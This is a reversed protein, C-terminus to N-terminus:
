ADSPDLVFGALYDQDALPYGLRTDVFAYASRRAAEAGATLWDYDELQLRDFAPAAWGTPLNARYLEPMAPDLITPTFALLLVEAPGNAAARVAATLTATSQALLTGAAELLARRPADLPAALDIIAPPNGGFAAKAADDYLCIERAPTVWWWPEGIQFRVPLNAEDLLAVFARAVDTLWAMAQTNAPSLLSSPPV